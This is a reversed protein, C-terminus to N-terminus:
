QPTKRWYQRWNGTWNRWWFGARWISVSDRAPNTLQVAHNGSDDSKRRFREKNKTLSDFPFRRNRAHSRTIVFM